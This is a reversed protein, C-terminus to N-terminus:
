DTPSPIGGQQATATIKVERASNGARYSTIAIGDGDTSQPNPIQISGVPDDATFTVSKGSIPINFQDKVIATLVSLNTNNAPLIAPNARLSISTIFPELTSLQYNFSSWEYTEGYYTADTQLRYVNVGEMTLDSIPIIDAQNKDLNDMTMSGYSDNLSDVNLFIANTTRTYILSHFKPWNSPFPAV